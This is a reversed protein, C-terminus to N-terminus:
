RSGRRLREEAVREATRADTDTPDGASAARAEDLAERPRDLALLALARNRHARPIDIGAYADAATAPDRLRLAADGLAMGAEIRAVGDLCGPAARAARYHAVAGADDRQKSAPLRRRAAVM